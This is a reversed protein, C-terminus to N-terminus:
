TADVSLPPKLFATQPTATRYTASQAGLALM